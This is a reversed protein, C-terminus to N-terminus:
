GICSNIPDYIVRPLKITELEEQLVNTWRNIVQIHQEHIIDREVQIIPPLHFKYFEHNEKHKHKKHEDYEPSRVHVVKRFLDPSRFYNNIDNM